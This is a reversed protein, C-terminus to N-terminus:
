RQRVREQHHAKEVHVERIEKIFGQQDREVTRTIVEPFQRQVTVADKLDEISRRLNEIFTVIDQGKLVATTDGFNFSFAPEAELAAKLVEVFQEAARRSEFTVRRGHLELAPATAAAAKVDEVFNELAEYSEFNFTHGAFRLSPHHLAHNLKDFAERVDDRRAKIVGDGAAFETHTLAHTLAAVLGEAEGRTMTFPRGNIEQMLYPAVSDPSPGKISLM